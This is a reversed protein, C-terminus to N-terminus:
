AREGDRSAADVPQPPEVPALHREWVDLTVRHNGAAFLDQARFEVTYVPEPAGDLGQAVDDAVPYIGQCEVVAGVVGRAYRPVRTHHAPDGTSVRVLQGARLPEAV